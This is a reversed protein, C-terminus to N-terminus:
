INMYLCVCVINSFMTNSIICCPYFVNSNINSNDNHSFLHLFLLMVTWGKKECFLYCVVKVEHKHLYDFSFCTQFTWLSFFVTPRNRYVYTQLHIKINYLILFHLSFETKQKALYQLRKKLYFILIISFYAIAKTTKFNEWVSVCELRSHTLTQSFKLVDAHVFAIAYKWNYKIKLFSNWYKFFRSIWSKYCREVNLM